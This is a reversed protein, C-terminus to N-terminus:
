KLCELIKYSYVLEIKKIERNTEALQNTTATHIAMRKDNDDMYLWILDKAKQELENNGLLKDLGTGENPITAM